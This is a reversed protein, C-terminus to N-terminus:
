GHEYLDLLLRFHGGEQYAKLSHQINKAIATDVYAEAHKSDSFPIDRNYNIGGLRMTGGYKIYKDIGRIGLVEEFEKYPIFTTHVLICRDYLQEENTFAFGLSDTGSLVIKMGSSAYIDSFIAAGEVFDEMLTVEDIFIYEYGNQELLKLDSDVDALSDNTTIQIFAARKFQEQTLETLIQRIMTTKGTRRLGYIILVKDDVPGLVYDRIKSICQRKKYRKASIIQNELQEGIRVMTRFSLNVEKRKTKKDPLLSKKLEKLEKELTKRLAIENKLVEADDFNVYNESRKGDRTLRHYYYDKGNINKRTISGKPLKGIERELEAIREYIESDLM